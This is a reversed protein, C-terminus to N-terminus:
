LRFDKNFDNFTKQMQETGKKFAIFQTVLTLVASVIVTVISWGNFPDDKALYLVFEAIVWIGSFSTIIGLLGFVLYWVSIKNM